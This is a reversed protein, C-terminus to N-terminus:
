FMSKITSPLPQVTGSLEPANHANQSGLICPGGAAELAESGLFDIFMSKKTPSAFLIFLDRLMGAGWAAM